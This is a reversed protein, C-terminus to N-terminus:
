RHVIGLLHDGGDLKARLPSELDEIQLFDLTSEDLWKILTHGPLLCSEITVNCSFGRGPVIM